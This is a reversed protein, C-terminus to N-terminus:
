DYKVYSRISAYAKDLFDPDDIRIEIADHPCVAACRGCARCMEGVVAKGGRVEIAGIYCHGACEGCGRCSESVTVTVGELRPMLPELTKVPLYRMYRTVCCCECCFCTTLMTSRDKVDFIYNDARVKGVVPILGAEVARRAHELAEEVGVERGPFRKIELASDGMM